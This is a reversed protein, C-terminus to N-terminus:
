DMLEIDDDLSLFQNHIDMFAKILSKKCSMIERNVNMLTSTEMENIQDAKLRELLRSKQKREYGRVQVLLEVVDAEMSEDPTKGLLKKFQSEFSLWDRRIVLGAGHVLDNESNDFEDLNHLIDKIAKASYVCHRVAHVYNLLMGSENKSFQNLPLHTYYELLDGETHKIRQYTIQLEREIASLSRISGVRGKPGSQGRDLVKGIYHLVKELMNQAERKLADVALLPVTPLNPSIYSGHQEEGDKFKGELWKSLFPLLPLFLLISLVNIFSQFFVLRILPDNYPLFQTIFQIIWDLLFFAFIATFINYIFTGWGVRKKDPSGQIGWLLVKMTTGVESGIVVAAGTPFDLLGSHIAALTIAVTTSSSQII